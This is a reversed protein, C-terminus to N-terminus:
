LHRLCYLWTPRSTVLGQQITWNWGVDCTCGPQQGTYSRLIYWQIVLYPVNEEAPVPFFISTQGNPAPHCMLCCVSWRYLPGQVDRWPDACPDLWLYVVQGVLSPGTNLGVWVGMNVGRHEVQALFFPRKRFRIFCSDMIQACICHAFLFIRSRWTTHQCQCSQEWM